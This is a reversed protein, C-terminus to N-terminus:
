NREYNTIKYGREKAVSEKVVKGNDPNILRFGDNFNDECAILFASNYILTLEKLQDLTNCRIVKM